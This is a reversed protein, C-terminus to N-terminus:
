FEDRNPGKKRLGTPTISFRQRFRETFRSVSQYGCNGAIRSISWDTFQIEALAQGLRVDDLVGQFSTNEKRLHRGLTSEGVALLRCADRVRWMRAPDTMFLSTLRERWSGSLSLLLHSAACHRTLCLLIELLRHEVLDRGAEPLEVVELFHLLTSYLLDNGMGALTGSWELTDTGRHYLQRFREILSADFSICLALYEGRAGDPLNVMNFRSPAPIAFYDGKGCRLERDGHCLVKRGALVLVLCPELFPVERIEQRHRCCIIGARTIPFKEQEAARRQVVKRAFGDIQQLFRQNDM